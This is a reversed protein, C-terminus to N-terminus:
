AQDALFATANRPVFLTFITGTGNKSEYMELARLPFSSNAHQVDLATGGIEQKKRHTMGLEIIGFFGGFLNM